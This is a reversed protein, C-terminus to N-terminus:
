APGASDSPGSGAASGARCPHGAGLGQSPGRRRATSSSAASRARSSLAPRRRPAPAAACVHPRQPRAQVDGPDALGLVDGVVRRRQQGRRARRGGEQVGGLGHVAAGALDHRTVRHDGDAVAALGAPAAPQRPPPARCPRGRSRRDGPTGPEHSAVGRRRREEVGAHGALTPPQTECRAGADRCLDEHQCCERGCELRFGAEGAGFVVAAVGGAGQAFTRFVVLAYSTRGPGAPDPDTASSGARLPRHARSGRKTM